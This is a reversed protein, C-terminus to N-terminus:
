NGDGGRQMDLIYADFEAQKIQAMIIYSAIVTVILWVIAYLLFRDGGSKIRIANQYIGESNREDRAWIAQESFGVLVEIRTHPSSPSPLIIKNWIYRDGEGFPIASLIENGTTIYYPYLYEKSDFFFPTEYLIGGNGDYLLEGELYVLVHKQGDVGPFPAISRSIFREYISRFDGRGFDWNWDYFSTRMTELHISQLRILEDFMIANLRQIQYTIEQADSTIESARRGMSTLMFSYFLLLIVFVVLIISGKRKVYKYM